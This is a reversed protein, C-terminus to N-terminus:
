WKSHTLWSTPSALPLTIGSAPVSTSFITNSWARACLASPVRDVITEWGPRGM